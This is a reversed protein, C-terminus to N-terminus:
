ARRPVRVGALRASLMFYANIAAGRGRLPEVFAARAEAKPMEGRVVAYYLRDGLMYGLAHAVADLVVPSASFLSADLPARGGQELRKHGLVLQARQLEPKSYLTPDERAERLMRRFASEHLAKRKHNVLKSGFFALAENVARDYFAEIAHRPSSEGALADRLFHAAEESSHNVSPTGLYVLKLRPIYYSESNLIQERLAQWEDTSFVKSRRLRHMFSLDALTEVQVGTLAERADLELLHAILQAQDVFAERLTAVDHYRDDEDLWRLFSQQCIVPPVVNLAYRDRALLVAEAEQELGRAELAHYVQECNQHLTVLRTCGRSRLAAPLHAPALHLEGILCLVQGTPNKALWAAIRTAAYRDRAELSAGRGADRDIALGTVRHTRALECISRLGDFSGYPWHQKFSIRRLFSKEGLRGRLFADLADQHSGEVFELALALPRTSPLLQRLLRVVSRQSQELTHYDGVLVVDAARSRTVIEDFEAVRQLRPLSRRYRAEYAAFARDDDSVAAQIRRQNRRYIERHLAVLEDRFSSSPTRDARPARAASRRRTTAM